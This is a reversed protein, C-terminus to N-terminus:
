KKMGRLHKVLADALAPKGRLDPNGPMAASKGVAAGGEVIAKKIDEDKVTGHWAAETFNRPKPTLASGGPGDGAGSDGHCVACKMKYYAAPDDSGGGAATAAGTTAGVAGGSAKEEKNCGVSLLLAGCAVLVVKLDM